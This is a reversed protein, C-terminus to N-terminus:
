AADGAAIAHMEALKHADIGLGRIGAARVVRIHYKAPIANRNHWQHVVGTAVGVDQALVPRSPWLAILSRVDVMGRLMTYPEYM